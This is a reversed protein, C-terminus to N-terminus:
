IEQKHMRPPMFLERLPATKVRQEVAVKFVGVNPMRLYSM